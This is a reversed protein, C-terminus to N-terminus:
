KPVLRAASTHPRFWEPSRQNSRRTTTYLTEHRQKQASWHSQYQESYRKSCRRQAQRSPAPQDLNAIAAVIGLSRPPPYPVPSSRPRAGVWPSSRLVPPPQGVIGGAREDM